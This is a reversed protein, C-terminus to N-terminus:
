DDALNRELDGDLHAVNEIVRTEAKRLLRYKLRTYRIWDGIFFRWVIGLIKSNNREWAFIELARHRSFRNKLSKMTWIFWEPRCDNIKDLLRRNEGIDKENGRQLLLSNLYLFPCSSVKRSFCWKAAVIKKLTIRHQDETRTDNCTIMYRQYM